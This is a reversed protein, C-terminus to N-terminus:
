HNLVIFLLSEYYRIIHDHTWRWKQHSCLLDVAFVYEWTSEKLDEGFQESLQFEMQPCLQIALLLSSVMMGVDAPANQFFSHISIKNEFM